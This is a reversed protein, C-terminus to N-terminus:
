EQQQQLQQEQWQRVLMKGAQISLWRGHLETEHLQLAADVAKPSTFLVECYGKSRGSDDFTPFTITQITGCEAFFTRVDDITTDYNLGFVRVSLPQKVKNMKKQKKKTPPGVNKTSEKSDNNDGTTTTTTMNNMPRKKKNDNKTTEQPEQQQRQQQRKALVKDRLAEDHRYPCTTERRRCKGKTKWDICDKGADPRKTSTKSSTTTKNKGEEKDNTTVAANTVARCCREPDHWYPCDDGQRCSGKKLFEWCKTKTTKTTTNTAEASTSSPAVSVVCGGEGVHRFKCAEGYPCRKQQWLFCCFNDETRDDSVASVYITHRKKSRPTAGGKLTQKQILQTAAAATDMHLFAFGKHPCIKKTHRAKIGDDDNDDTKEKGKGEDGDNDDEKEYVLGVDKISGKPLGSVSEEILRLISEETFTAPIRNVFVKCANDVVVMAPQQKQKNTGHQNEDEGNEKKKRKNNLAPPPPPPPASPEDYKRGM